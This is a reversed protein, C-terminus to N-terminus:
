NRKEYKRILALLEGASILKKRGDIFRATDTSFDDVLYLGDRCRGFEAKFDVLRIGMAAALSGAITNVSKMLSHITQLESASVIRLIEKKTLFPDDKEDSKLTYEFLGPLKKLSPLGPHRRLYSGFAYNRWIFEVPIRDMKRILIRRASLKKVFHTKLNRSNFRGLFFSTMELVARGKGSCSGVIENGGSDTRGARGLLSDKFHLILLSPAQAVSYLNKTKGTYLLRNPSYM